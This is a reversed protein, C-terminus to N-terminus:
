YGETVFDNLINIMIDFSYYFAVESKKKLCKCELGASLSYITTFFVVNVKTTSISDFVPALSLNEAQAYDAM